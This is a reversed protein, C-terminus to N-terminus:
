DEEGARPLNQVNQGYAMYPMGPDPDEGQRCSTRGTDVMVNYSAQIPMGLEAARLIRRVRSLLGGAQGFEAYAALVPDRSKECADADLSINGEVVVGHAELEKRMKREDADEPPEGGNAHYAAELMKKTPNKRPVPLGMKEFVDTIHAQAPTKLRSVKFQGKEKRWEALPDCDYGHARPDLIVAKAEEIRKETEQNLVRATELDVRFGRCQTLSLCIAMSMQRAHDIYEEPKYRHRQAKDIDRVVIDGVAYDIYPQPWQQIPTDLMTGYRARGEFGKDITAQIGYHRTVDALTGIDKENGDEDNASGRAIRIQKERIYCCHWLGLRAKRFVLPMLQLNHAMTVVAEFAANYAIMECQDDLLARLLIKDISTDSGRLSPFGARRGTRAHVLDVPGDDWAYAM